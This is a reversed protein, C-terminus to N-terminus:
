SGLIRRVCLALEATRSSKRLIARVGAARARKESSVEPYDTYLIIPIDPRIALIQRALDTGSLDPMKEDTVVLDFEAPRDSFVALADPSSMLATVGYGHDELIESILDLLIEEDDIVLINPCDKRKPLVRKVGIVYLPLRGKELALGGEIRQGQDRTCM